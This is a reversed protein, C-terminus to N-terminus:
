NLNCLVNWALRHVSPSRKLFWFCVDGVSCCHSLPCLCEGGVGTVYTKDGPGAPHFSFVLGWLNNESRWVHTIAHACWCLYVCECM